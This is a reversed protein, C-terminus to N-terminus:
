VLKEQDRSMIDKQTDEDQLIIIILIMSYDCIGKSNNHFIQIM